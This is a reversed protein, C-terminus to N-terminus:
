KKTLDDVVVDGGLVDEVDYVVIDVAGGGNLRVAAIGCEAVGDALAEVGFFFENKYIGDDVFLVFLVFLVFGDSRAPPVEAVVAYGQVVMEVERKAGGGGARLFGLGNPYFSFVQLHKGFMEAVAERDGASGHFGVFEEGPQTQEEGSGRGDLFHIGVKVDVEFLHVDHLIHIAVSVVRGIGGAEDEISVVVERGLCCAETGSLHQRDGDVFPEEKVCESEVGLVLRGPAFDM